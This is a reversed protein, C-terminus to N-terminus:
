EHHRRVAPRGRGCRHSLGDGPRPRHARGPGDVPFRAYATIDGDTVTVPSEYRTENGSDYWGAFEQGAPAAPGSPPTVSGGPNCYDTRVTASDSQFQVRCVRPADPDLSAPVPYADPTGTLRQGWAQATSDAQGNQLAWAVEGTAFQANDRAEAEGDTDSATGGIGVIATGTEYYCNVVAASDQRGGVVGGTGSAGNSGTISGAHYSNAVRSGTNWIRGVVGGVCAGTATAEVRGTNCCNEVTIPDHQTDYLYENEGVVGGLVSNTGECIVTGDNRCGAIRGSASDGVVGGARSKQYGAGVTATVNGTNRCGIVNKENYGM